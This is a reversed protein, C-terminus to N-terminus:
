LTSGVPGCDAGCDDLYLAGCDVSLRDGDHVRYRNHEPLHEVRIDANVWAADFHVRWCEHLVLRAYSAESPRKLRIRLISHSVGYDWVEAEAGTWDELARVAKANM